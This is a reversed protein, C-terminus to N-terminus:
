AEGCGQQGAPQGYVRRHTPDVDIFMHEAPKVERETLNEAVTTHM